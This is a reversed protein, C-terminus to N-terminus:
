AIWDRSVWQLDWTMKWWSSNVSHENEGQLQSQCCTFYAYLLVFNVASAEWAYGTSVQVHSFLAQLCRSHPEATSYKAVLKECLARIDDVSLDNWQLVAAFDDSICDGGFSNSCCPWNRQTQSVILVTPTSILIHLSFFSSASRFRTGLQTIISATAVNFVSNRFAIAPSERHASCEFIWKQKGPRNDKFEGRRVVVVVVM